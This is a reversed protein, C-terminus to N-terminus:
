QLWKMKSRRRLDELTSPFGSIAIKEDSRKLKIALVQFMNNHKKVMFNFPLRFKKVGDGRQQPECVMVDLLRLRGSPHEVTTWNKVGSVEATNGSYMQAYSFSEVLEGLLKELQPSGHSLRCRISGALANYSPDISPSQSSVPSIADDIDDPEFFFLNALLTNAIEQIEAAASTKSWETASDSLEQLKKYEYLEVHEGYLPPDLRYLRSRVDDTAQREFKSWSAKSDLQRQFMARVITPAERDRGKQDGTGLSLLYDLSAGKEPWLKEMEGYAVEAPCNAYVAGDIYETNTEKKAFPPLYFPVASTALAAEWIKMDKEPDDERELNNAPNGLPHNYNTILCTTQGSDKASTVAVRTPLPQSHLAPAFLSTEHPHHKKFFTKLGEKLSDSSFLSETLRSVMLAYTTVKKLPGIRSIIGASTQSFTKELVNIFFKIM